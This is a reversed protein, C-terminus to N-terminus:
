EDKEGMRVLPVNANHEVFGVAPNVVMSSRGSGFHKKGKKYNTPAFRNMADMRAIEEIMDEGEVSDIFEERKVAIKQNYRAEADQEQAHLKHDPDLLFVTGWAFITYIISAVSFPEYMVVWEPAAYNAFKSLM